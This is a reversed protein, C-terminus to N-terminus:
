TTKFCNEIKEIEETKLRVIKRNIYGKRFGEVLFQKIDKQLIRNREGHESARNVLSVLNSLSIKVLNIHCSNVLEDSTDGKTDEREIGITQLLDENFLLYDFNSINDCNAALAAAVRTLNSRDDTIRYVSLKNDKTAMDNLCDAQLDGSNLWSLNDTSWRNKRIKRLIFPV